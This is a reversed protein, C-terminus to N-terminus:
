SNLPQNQLSSLHDIYWRGSYNHEGLFILRILSAALGAGIRVDSALQPWSSITKGIESLSLKGRESVQAFDIFSNLLFRQREKPDILKALMNEDIRGHLIPYDPNLDFREVDILGRDSTDMVVPIRSAKCAKRVWYKMEIDDCEEAVLDVPMDGHLFDFLNDNNIGNTEIVVRIYPDLEVLQRYLVITKPVGVDCISSQIRNLNSTEITDFDAIKITGCLREMVLSVSVSSGVSLGIVGVTKRSLLQQEEPSIKHANRATRILVFLEECLIKVILRRWPYYVFRVFELSNPSNYFRLLFNPKSEYPYLKRLENVQLQVLDHVPINEKEILDLVVEADREVSPDLLQMGGTGQNAPQFLDMIRFNPGIM